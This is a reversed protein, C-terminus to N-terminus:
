QVHSKDFKVRGQHDIVNGDKDLRYGRASVKQGRKDVYEGSKTKKIMPNGNRDFDFEGRVQHPNFNHKEVNFPAPVEGKGDLASKDFMKQGNYNNIINGDKDVLYGRENTPKGDKDKFNGNADPEVIVNGKEDRDFRGLIDCENFRRSTATPPVEVIGQDLKDSFNKLAGSKVM